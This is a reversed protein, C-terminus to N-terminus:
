VGSIRVFTERMRDHVQAIREGDEPRVGGDVVSCVDVDSRGPVYGGLAVSGFLRVSRLRPELVERIRPLWWDLLVRVAAPIEITAM